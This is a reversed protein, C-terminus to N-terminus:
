GVREGAPDKGEILMVAEKRLSEIAPRITELRFRLVANDEALRKQEEMWEDAKKLAARADKPQKLQHRNMAVLLWASADFENEKAKVADLSRLSAEWDRNRYQVMALTYWNNGNEPQLKTAERAREVAAKTDRLREDPCHAFEWAFRNLRFALWHEAAERDKANGLQKQQEEIGRLSLALADGFRHADQLKSIEDQFSHERLEELRERAVKLNHAPLPREPDLEVAKEGYDIAKQVAAEVDARNGQQQQVEGLALYAIALRAYARKRYEVDTAQPLIEEWLGIAEEYLRKAEAGGKQAQIEAEEYERFAAKEKDDLRKLTEDAGQNALAACAFAIRQRFDEDMSPDNGLEDALAVARAYYRAADDARNQRERIWGLNYLTLAKNARYAAPPSSRATLDEWIRLSKQFSREAVELHGSNAEAAGENLALLAERERVPDVGPHLLHLSAKYREFGVTGLMGIAYVATATLLGRAWLKRATSDTQLNAPLMKPAEAALRWARMCMLAGAIIFAWDIPDVLYWIKSEVLPTQTDHVAMFHGVFVTLGRGTTSALTALGLVRLLGPWRSVRLLVLAVFPWAYLLALAMGATTLAQSFTEGTPLNLGAGGTCFLIAVFLLAAQLILLLLVANCLSCVAESYWVRRLRLRADADDVRVAMGSVERAGWGMEACRQQALEIVADAGRIAARVQLGRHALWRTAGVFVVRGLEVYAVNPAHAVLAVGEPLRLDGLPADDGPQRQRAQLEDQWREGEAASVFSLSLTETSPEPGLTLDLEQGRRRAEVNEISQLPIQRLQWVDQIWLASATLATMVPAAGRETRLWVHTPALIEAIPNPKVPPPEDALQIEPLPPSPAITIAQGRMARLSPVQITRGCSCTISSGAIGVSVWHVQGCICAVEYDM